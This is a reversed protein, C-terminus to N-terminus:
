LKLKELKPAQPREEIPKYGMEWRRKKAYVKKLQEQMALLARRQKLKEKSDHPPKALSYLYYAMAWRGRDTYSQYAHEPYSKTGMTISKFYDMPTKVSDKVAPIKAKLDPVVLSREKQLAEAEPGKGDFAVGHCAACGAENYYLSGNILVQRRLAYVPIETKANCASSLSWLVFLGLFSSARPVLSVLFEWFNKRPYSYPSKKM